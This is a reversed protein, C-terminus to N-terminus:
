HSNPIPLNYMWVVTVFRQAGVGMPIVGLSLLSEPGAGQDDPGEIGGNAGRDTLGSTRSGFLAFGPWAKSTTDICGTGFLRGIWEPGSRRERRPHGELILALAVSAAGARCRQEERCSWAVGAANHDSRTIEVAAGMLAKRRRSGIFPLLPDFKV